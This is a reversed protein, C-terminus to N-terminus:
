VGLKLERTEKGFFKKQIENKARWRELNSLAVNKALGVSKEAKDVLKFVKNNAEFLRQYEESKLIEELKQESIQDEIEKLLSLYQPLVADLREPNNKIKVELISLYDLVYCEDLSIKWM